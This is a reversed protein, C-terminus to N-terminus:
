RAAFKQHGFFEAVKNFEDVTLSGGLQLLQLYAILYTYKAQALDRRAVFLARDAVLADLNTKEGGKVSAKTAKVLTESSEVAKSM